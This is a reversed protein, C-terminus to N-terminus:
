GVRCIEADRIIHSGNCVKLTPCDVCYYDNVTFSRTPGCDKVKGTTNFIWFCNSYSFGSPGNSCSAYCYFTNEMFHSYRLSCGCASSGNTNIKQSSAKSDSCSALAKDSTCVLEYNIVAMKSSCTCNATRLIENEGCAKLLSFM